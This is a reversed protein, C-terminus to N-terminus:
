ATAVIPLTPEASGGAPEITIGLVLGDPDTDDFGIEVRGDGDPRFLGVSRVGDDGVLWLQYTESDELVDVGVGDVVLAGVTPSYVARLSGGVEGEFPRVEADDPADTPLRVHHIGGGKGGPPTYTGVLFELHPVENM